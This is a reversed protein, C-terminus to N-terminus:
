LVVYFAKNFFFLGHDPCLHHNKLMLFHFNGVKAESEWVTDDAFRALRITGSLALPITDAYVFFNM